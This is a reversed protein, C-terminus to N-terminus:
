GKKLKEMFSKSSVLLTTTSLEGSHGRGSGNAGIPFLIRQLVSDGAQTKPRSVSIPPQDDDGGGTKEM